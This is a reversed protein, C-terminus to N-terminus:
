DNFCNIYFLLVKYLCLSQLVVESTMKLSLTTLLSVCQERQQEVAYLGLREIGIVVSHQM